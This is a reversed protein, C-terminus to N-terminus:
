LGLLERRYERYDRNPDIITIGEMDVHGSRCEEPPLKLYDGYMRRLIRDYNVPVCFESDEFKLKTMEIWDERSYKGEFPAADVTGIWECEEPDRMALELLYESMAKRVPFPIFGIIRKIVNRDKRVRYLSGTRLRRALLMMEHQLKVGFKTRAAGIFPYIDLFLGWHIDLAANKELMSTTGNAKVQTWLCYSDPESEYFCCVFREPLEDSVEQFRRYDKLPMALDVDDDWPIFGGHRVAGLLTGCYLTYRLDYKDCLKVVAKLM